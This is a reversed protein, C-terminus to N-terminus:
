VQDLMGKPFQVDTPGIRTFIQWVRFDWKQRVVWIQIRFMQAPGQM